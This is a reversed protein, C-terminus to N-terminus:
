KCRSPKKLHLLSAFKSRDVVYFDGGNRVIGQYDVFYIAMGPFDIRARVNSKNYSSVEGSSAKKLIALFSPKDIHYLCGYESMQQEPIGTMREIEFGFYSATGQDIVEVQTSKAETVIALSAISLLMSSFIQTLKM